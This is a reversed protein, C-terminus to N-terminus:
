RISISPPGDLLPKIQSSTYHRIALASRMMIRANEEVGARANSELLNRAIVYTLSMTLVFLLLLVLNFKLAIKM